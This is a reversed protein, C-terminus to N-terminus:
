VTLHKNPDFDLGRLKLKIRDLAKIAKDNIEQRKEGLQEM